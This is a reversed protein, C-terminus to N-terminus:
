TLMRPPDEPQLAEWNKKHRTYLQQLQPVMEPVNWKAATMLLPLHWGSIFYSLM